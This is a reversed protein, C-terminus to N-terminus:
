LEKDFFALKDILVLLSYIVDNDTFLWNMTTKSPM